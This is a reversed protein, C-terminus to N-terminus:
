NLCPEFSPSVQPAVIFLVMCKAPNRNRFGGGVGWTKCEGGGWSPLQVVVKGLLNPVLLKHGDLLRAGSPKPV